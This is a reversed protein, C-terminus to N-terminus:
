LQPVPPVHEAPDHVLQPPPKILQPAGARQTSVIVLAMCQPVHVVTHGVDAVQLPPAHM